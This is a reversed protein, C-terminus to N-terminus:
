MCVSQFVSLLSNRNWQWTSVEMLHRGTVTCLTLLSMLSIIHFSTWDLIIYISNNILIGLSQRQYTNQVIM